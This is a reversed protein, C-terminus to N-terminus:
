MNITFPNSSSPIVEPGEVRIRPQKMSRVRARWYDRDVAYTCLEKWTQHTPADMLLDGEKRNKSMEYASRKLLRETGMRLIHGMWQLRKVRIWLIIDFTRFKTSVEQHPTNGTIGAMM